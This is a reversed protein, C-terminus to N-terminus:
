PKPTEKEVPSALADAVLREVVRKASRLTSASGVTQLLWSALDDAEGNVAALLRAHVEPMWKPAVVTMAVRLDRRAVLVIDEDHKDDPTKIDDTM